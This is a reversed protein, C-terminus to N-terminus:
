RPALPGIAAAPVARGLAVDAAAGVAVGAVGWQGDPGRALLPAGSAGRTGACDHVLMAHGTPRREIGLARCEADALLVEPRDQQYGALMLPARPPPPDSLLPLAHGAPAVERELVLLAWDAGAPGPRVPDPTFGPGIRYDLVRAHAVWAGLHYGLLFHASGPRVMGTRERNMLCHAATLVLRPGILAGTCRRGIETQVRGLARWPAAERDALPRRPDAAGIGPRVAGPPAIRMDQARAQPAVLLAAALALRALRRAPRIRREPRGNRSRGAAARRRAGGRAAVSPREAAAISLQDAAGAGPQV